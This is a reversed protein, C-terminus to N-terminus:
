PRQMIGVFSPGSPVSANSLKSLRGTQQDIRFVTIRDAKQSAVLMIGGSADLTFDRPWDIDGDGTEHGVLTLRGSDPDIRFIVISNHGRNSGYLFRGSPSVLVHATSNGALAAGVPLTSVTQPDSLGGTAVDCALSTVTSDLENICYAFPKNPHFTLHRPGAGVACAVTATATLTGSAADCRYIAVQDSGLCPVYLWQGTPDFMVQHANKGPLLIQQAEGVGGDDRVPLVGLHGSGYNASYIWRGNPHVAVHCPGQGAASADNICTLAGDTSRIRFATVRGAGAENIAYMCTRRANWALYSPNRGGESISAPTLVGTAADLELCSITHQYGSVYVFPNPMIEEAAAVAIVASMVVVIHAITMSANRLVVGGRERRCSAIARLTMSKLITAPLGLVM